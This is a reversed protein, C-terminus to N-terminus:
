NYFYCGVYSPEPRLRIELLIHAEDGRSPRMRASGGIAFPGSRPQTRLVLRLVNSFAAAHPSSWGDLRAFSSRSTQSLGREPPLTM